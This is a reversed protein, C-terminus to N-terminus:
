GSFGTLRFLHQYLGGFGSSSAMETSRGFYRSIRLLKDTYENLCPFLRFNVWAESFRDAFGTGQAQVRIVVM